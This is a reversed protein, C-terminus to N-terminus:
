ANMRKERLDIGVQEIENLEIDGGVKDFSSMHLWLEELVGYIKDRENHLVDEVCFVHVLGEIEIWSQGPVKGVGKEKMLRRLEGVEKWKGLGAYIGCLLVYGTYNGPDIKLIKEVVREGIEVNNHTKCAALVTKWMVVDPDYPMWDIFSEAEKILGGRALLDVVCAYHERTPMIAHKTEMSNFLELGEKILGVHSCATLVGVFTVGNPDVRSDRMRKFLDLAEKGYGFQAYGLILSSWSFVDHYCMYDFLKRGNLLSGCKTYMDILGNTMCIDVEFGTKIIFCHVQEGTKLSALERCGVLLSAFTVHDPNNNSLILLRFLKFVKESQKNQICITLITNWSVLDKNNELDNFIQFANVLDSCKAYMSLLTNCVSIHIDLGTKTVYSHLQKGQHLTSPTTFACLLSRLTIDDPKFGMNRMKSFYFVAENVYGSYAFGAIITNWSVVDPNEIQCFATEASNLFGFRAYMDSLSCGVFTDKQLMHKISMAHIQKGYEPHLLNGCASLISGFIFENPNYTGYSFMNKFCALSEQEYGLQSFGSIMSSWSILDKTRISSFVLSAESIKGFNTYMTILANQAILHSGSSLKIVNAHLQRGLKISNMGSSARIISAFTFQDPMIGSLRMECYMKIAENEQGTQSYGAIMSTWSVVNREPMKDFVKRADELSGCKGYMNLIHNCLIMDPHYNSALIHEHVRRGEELSRLSSCASFLHAYTSPKVQFNTRERLFDFGDMAAKFLKQKCLSSIHDNSSQDTRFNSLAIPRCARNALTAMSM